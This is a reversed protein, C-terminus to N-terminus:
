RSLKLRRAMEEERDLEQKRLGEVSRFLEQARSRDGHQSHLRGLQYYALRLDPQLRIAEELERIADQYQGLEAHCRGLFLWPLPDKSFRDISKQFAEAAEEFRRLQFYALGQNYLYVNFARNEPGGGAAVAKEYFPLSEQYRGRGYLCNAVFFHAPAALQKSGLLPRLTREAEAYRQLRFLSFGRTFKWAEGLDGNPPKGTLAALAKTDQDAAQYAQALKFRRLYDREQALLVATDATLAQLLLVLAIM